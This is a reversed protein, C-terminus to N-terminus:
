RLTLTGQRWAPSAWRQFARLRDATGSWHEVRTSEAALLEFRRTFRAATRLERAVLVRGDPSFGALEVYGVDAGPDGAGPPIVDVRWSGGGAGGAGGARFIWLETWGPLPAVALAVARGSPALRLSSGLVVGYTCREIPTPVGVGNSAAGASQLRVCTEGPRAPAIAVVVAPRRPPAAAEALWRVAAVRVATDEYSGADEPALRGRDVLALRRLSEAAARAASEARGQAAEDHAKEALAEAARLRLRYAPAAPLLGRSLPGEVAALVELRAENWARRQAAMVAPDLCGRRTLALAARAQLEPAAGPARLVRMFADGDYCVVMRGAREFRHFGVRYSEAVGIQGALVSDARAGGSSAGSGRRGLRDAMEGLAALVEAQRAFVSERGAMERAHSSLVAGEGGSRAAVANVPLAAAPTPAVKLYLAAYAIGLSEFGASDRLFRVVAALEAALAEGGTGGANVPPLPHVRVNQPRVYGGRERRHDWVKLFGPAEGRVELWDGRYLIAQAPAADSPASRLALNDEAVLALAAAAVALPNM